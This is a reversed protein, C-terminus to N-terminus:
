GFGDFATSSGHKVMLMEERDNLFMKVVMTASMKFM